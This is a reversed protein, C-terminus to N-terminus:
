PDFTRPLRRCVFPDRIHIGRKAHVDNGEAAQATVSFRAEAHVGQVDLTALEFKGPQSVRVIRQVAEGSQLVMKLTLDVPGSTRELYYYAGVASDDLDIPPFELSVNEQVSPGPRLLYDSDTVRFVAVTGSTGSFAKNATEVDLFKCDKLHLKEKRKRLIEWERCPGSEFHRCIQFGLGMLHYDTLLKQHLMKHFMIIDPKFTELIRGIRDQGRIDMVQPSNIGYLDICTLGSEFAPWGHGTLFVDTPAAIAKVYKGLNRREGEAELLFRQHRGVVDSFSAIGPLARAGMGSVTVVIAAVTLILPVNRAAFGPFDRFRAFELSSLVVLLQFALFPVVFYWGFVEAFPASFLQLLLGCTVVLLVLYQFSPLKRKRLAEALLCTIPMLSFFFFYSTPSALSFFRAFYKYGEVSQNYTVKALLSHPIPSGFYGWCAAFFTAVPAFYLFLPSLFADQLRSPSHRYNWLMQAAVVVFSAFVMDLKIVASLACLPWLLLLLRQYYFLYFVAALLVASVLSELGSNAYVFYDPVSAVFALSLFGALYGGGRNGVLFCAILMLSYALLGPLRLYLFHYDLVPFARLFAALLTFPASSSGFVPKEDTANYRYGHGEALNRVYILTIAADDVLLDGPFSLYSLVPVTVALVLVVFSIAWRKM